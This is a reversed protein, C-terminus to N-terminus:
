ETRRRDLYLLYRRSEPFAKEGASQEFARLAALSEGDLGVPTECTLLIRIDGRQGDQVRPLGLGTLKIESGTQTGPSVHITKTGGLTPVELECGTAARSFPLTALCVLDRGQVRFLPHKRYRVDLFLDGASGGGFGADGEGRLVYGAGDEVGAPLAVSLAEVRIVTGVGRCSVCGAPQAGGCGPCIRQRPLDLRYNGGRAVDALDLELTFRLDSGQAKGFMRKFFSSSRSAPAHYPERGMAALRKDYAARMQPDSLVKYAASLAGFREAARPHNPNRDPHCAPALNKYAAKIQALDADRALGLLQYYDNQRVSSM